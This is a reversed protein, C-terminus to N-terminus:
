FIDNRCQPASQPGRLACQPTDARHTKDTLPQITVIVDYEGQVKQVPKAAIKDVKKAAIARRVAAKTPEIGRKVLDDLVRRIENPNDREFDRLQRAEHIEKRSM